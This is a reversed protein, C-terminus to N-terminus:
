IVLESNRILLSEQFIFATPTMCWYLIYYQIFIHIYYYVFYHRLETLPTKKKEKESFHIKQYDANM